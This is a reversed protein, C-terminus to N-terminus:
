VVLWKSSMEGLSSTWDVKTEEFDVFAVAGVVFSSVLLKRLWSPELAEGCLVAGFKAGSLGTM